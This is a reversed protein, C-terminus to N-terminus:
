GKLKRRRKKVKVPDPIMMEMVKGLLIHHIIHSVTYFIRAYVSYKMIFALVEAAVYAMVPSLLYISPRGIWYLACLTMVIDMGAFLWADNVWWLGPLGHMTEGAHWFFSNFILGM